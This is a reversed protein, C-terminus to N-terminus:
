RPFLAYAMWFSDVKQLQHFLTRGFGCFIACFNGFFVRNSIGEKTSGGIPCHPSFNLKACSCKYSVLLEGTQAEGPPSARGMSDLPSASDQFRSM